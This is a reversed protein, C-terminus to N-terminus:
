SSIKILKTGNQWVLLVAKTVGSGNVHELEAGEQSRPHLHSDLVPEGWEYRSQADARNLAAAAIGLFQRRQLM